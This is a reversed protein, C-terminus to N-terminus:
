GNIWASIPAAAPYYGSHPIQNVVDIYIQSLYISKFEFQGIM